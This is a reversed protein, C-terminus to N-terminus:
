EGKWILGMNGNAREAFAFGGFVLEDEVEARGIKLSQNTVYAPISTGDMFKIATNTIIVKFSGENGLEIQPEEGDTSIRIYSTLTELNKVVNQLAEINGGTEALDSELTKLDDTATQLQALTEGMSFVWGDSTQKMLSGGNEDVVLTSILGEIASINMEATELRASMADSLEDMADNAADLGDATNAAVDIYKKAAIENIVDETMTRPTPANWYYTPDDATGGSWGIRDSNYCVMPSTGNVQTAVLPQDSYIHYLAGTDGGGRLFIYFGMWDMCQGAGAFLTGYCEELDHIWWSYNAGGWGGYNCKIKLLLSIGKLTPHGNWDTPAKESYGRKVMIERMVNQDGGRLVVPYYTNADGNLTIDYKYQYGYNSKAKDTYDKASTAKQDAATIASEVEELSPTWDTAKNGIEFKLKSLAVVATDGTFTATKCHFIWNQDGSYKQTISFYGTTSDYKNEILTNGYTSALGLFFQSTPIANNLKLYGSVTCTTAPPKYGTVYLTFYKGAILTSTIVGNSVTPITNYPTHTSLKTLQIYNRGGVIIGEPTSGVCYSTSTTNDTYTIIIRTWLYPVTASTSPPSSAWTGTPASTGSSGAQYTIATSKVGRGAAGTEGKPGTAGTEGKSGTVCIAATTTTTNDTYTIVSRTWIYKGNEWGPYTGVWSGGTQSTASTSKYYQEIISKVGKGTAGTAGTAGTVGTPGTAGTAGTDGKAGAICVGNQSPSYSKTGAGNTKVTRSWMYKGNVWTPATTSWSGDSLSTASTSLYYEVDVSVIANNAKTWAEQAAQYGSSKNVASYTYTGDSFEIMECYYLSSASGSTYEPETTSWGSPPKATPKNPTSSSLKYYRTISKTDRYSSLTVTATAKRPM